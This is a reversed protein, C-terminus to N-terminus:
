KMLDILSLRMPIPFDFRKFIKFIDRLSWAKYTLNEKNIQIMFDGCYRAEIDELRNKM